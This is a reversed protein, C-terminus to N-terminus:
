PLNLEGLQVNSTYNNGNITITCTGDGNFVASFTDSITKDSYGQGSIFNVTAQFTGSISGTMKQFFNARIASRPFRLSLSTLTFTNTLTRKASRTLITDIATRSYSGSIVVSDSNTLSVIWVGSISQLRESISNTKHYGSGNVITVRLTRATDIKGNNIGIWYKLTDGDSTLYQYDYTRTIFSYYTSSGIVRRHSRTVAVTWTKAVPNYSTDVTVTDLTTADASLTVTDRFGTLSAITTVDSAQDSMGGNEEGVDSAISEAADENASLSTTITPQTPANNKQCGFIFLAAIFCGTISIAKMWEESKVWM